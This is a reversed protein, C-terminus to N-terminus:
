LQAVGGSVIYHQILCSYKVDAALTRHHCSGRHYLRSLLFLVAEFKMLGAGSAVYCMVAMMIQTM